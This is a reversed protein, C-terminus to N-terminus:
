FEFGGMFGWFGEGKLELGEIFYYELFVVLPTHFITTLLM